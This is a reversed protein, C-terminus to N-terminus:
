IQIDVAAGEPAAIVPMSLALGPSGPTFGAQGANGATQMFAAEKEFQYKLYAKLYDMTAKLIAKNESQRHKQKLEKLDEESMHPDVIELEELQSLSEELEELEEEGFESIMENLESLMEESADSESVEQLMRDREEFIADERQNIKEEGESVLASAMSRGASEQGQPNEEGEQTREVLEEMELHHKKRRAVLEMKKAHTLALELEGEDGDGISLKRKVEQVKRKASLVAQGASVSTKARLIKAAVERHNYPYKKKVEPSKKNEKASPIQLFGNEKDRSFGVHSNPATTRDLGRLLDKMHRSMPEANEGSKQSVGYSSGSLSNGSASRAWSAPVTNTGTVM